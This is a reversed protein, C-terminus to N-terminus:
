LLAILIGVGSLGSLALACWTDVALAGWYPSPDARLLSAALLVLGLGLGFLAAKLGPFHRRGAMRALGLDVLWLYVVLGLACLLQLPFRLSMVGTEDLAPAGLWSGPPLAAGYDVGSQWCGLWLGVALPGLLPALCDALWALSRRKVLAILAMALLAGAAAGPWSLGGQWFLLAELPHLAYYGAHLGVFFIRGGLLAALLVVLGFDVLRRVHQPQACRTIQWLGLSAGLGAFFSFVTM